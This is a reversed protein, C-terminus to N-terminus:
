AADAKAQLVRALSAGPENLIRVFQTAPTQLLALFRAQLVSKSPLTALERVQGATLPENDLVGVRVTPKQFEAAFVALIKAAACIDADGTVTATQGTLSDELGPMELERAAIKLFTNRVVSLRAGVGGLRTRLEEFHSVKMGKYDVILLYPSVKLKERLDSAILTKEPRM